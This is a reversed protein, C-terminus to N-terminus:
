KVTYGKGEMAAVFYKDWRAFKQKYAEIAMDVSESAAQRTRRSQVGRTLGGATAGIAAGKGADGAIAGVALGLLAGGAAGKVANGRTQDSKQQEIIGQDVLKAHEEYPDWGMQESAWEYAALEDKKQQEASQNQAPFIVHNGPNTSLSPPAAWAVVTVKLMVVVVTVAIVALLSKTLRSNKM